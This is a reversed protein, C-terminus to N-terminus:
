MIVGGFASSFLMTKLLSKFHNVSFADAGRELQASDRLSQPLSNWLRPAYNSFARTASATKCLPVNLLIGKSSSRLSRVPTFVQLLSRLYAPQNATLVKFTTLAVKYDIRQAVPLWHLERLLASASSRGYSNHVIRAASNQVRQLRNINHASMNALIANCYDLRSAVFSCAISNATSKDLKCRIHRLARLHFFANSCIDSTHRDFSLINDFTVGLLKVHDSIPVTVGSIEISNSNFKESKMQHRTGVILAESKSPNLKLDNFMFWRAVSTACDNLRSLTSTADADMSLYLTIDDAYSVHKVEFSSILRDIPSVYASFLLPGLVSGQPVGTESCVTVSAQDSVKVFHTRDALYSSIWNLASCDVGFDDALRRVLRTHSVCDFAASLDLVLLISPMGAATSNFLDNTVKILATETSHM